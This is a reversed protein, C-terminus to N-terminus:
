HKHILYIFTKDVENVNIRKLLIQNSAFSKCQFGSYTNHRKRQALFRLRTLVSIYKRRNLDIRRFQDFVLSNDYILSKKKEYSFDITSGVNLSYLFRQLWISLHWFTKSHFDITTRIQISITLTTEINGSPNQCFHPRSSGVM